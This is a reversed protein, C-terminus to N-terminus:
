KTKVQNFYAVIGDAIASALKRRYAPSNLNREETRNSIFGTEILVAPCNVNRLVSFRARKLGRNPTERVKGAISKQICSALFLSNSCWAHGASTGGEVKGTNYSPAGPPTLSFTGIGSVGASASDAHLSVFLQGRLRNCYSARNELSISTDGTRTMFIQFKVDKGDRKVSRKALESRLEKAILLTLVKERSIKGAAGPDSGGHGPDIIIRIPDHRKLSSRNLLPLLTGTFDSWSIYGVGNQWGPAFNLVIPLGEIVATRKDPSFAAITRGNAAVLRLVTKSANWRCSFYRALSSLAAYRRGYLTKSAVQSISIADSLFPPLLLLFFLFVTAIRRANM